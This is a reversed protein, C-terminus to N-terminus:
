SLMQKFLQLANSATYSFQSNLPNILCRSFELFETPLEQKRMFYIQAIMIGVAYTDFSYVFTEFLKEKTGKFGEIFQTYSLLVEHQYFNLYEQLKTISFPYKKFIFYISTIPLTNFLTNLKNTYIYFAIPSTFFDSGYPQEEETKTTYIRKMDKYTLVKGYDIITYSDRCVMINDPKIDNHFLDHKQYEVLSVLVSHIMQKFESVTLSKIRFLLTTECKRQFIFYNQDIQLGVCSISKLPISTLTTATKLFQNSFKSVFLQYIDLERQFITKELQKVVMDKRSQINSFLELTTAKQVRYKKGETSFVHM